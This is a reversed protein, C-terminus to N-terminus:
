LTPFLYAPSEPLATVDPLVTSSSSVLASGGAVTVLGGAVTTLCLLIGLLCVKANM